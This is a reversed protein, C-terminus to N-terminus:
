GDLTVGEPLAMGRAVAPRDAVEDRWRLLHPFDRIDLTTWDSVAVWPYAAVDAISYDGALFRHEGLRRDLLRYLREALAMNHALAVDSRTESLKSWHHTQGTIPGLSTLAAMFWHLVEDRARGKQPLFRSSREAFRMLIAGSECLVRVRDGEQWTVVPIKAAPNLATIRDAFQEGRRINVPEVRFQLGLECFLIAVRRSNPTAWMYLTLHRM